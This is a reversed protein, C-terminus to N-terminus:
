ETDIDRNGAMFAASWQRIVDHAATRVLTYEEQIEFPVPPFPWTVEEPMLHEGQALGAEIWIELKTQGADNIEAPDPAIWMRDDILIPLALLVYLRWHDRFYRGFGSTNTRLNSVTPVDPEIVSM